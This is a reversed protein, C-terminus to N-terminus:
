RYLRALVLPIVTNFMRLQARLMQFASQNNENRAPEFLPYRICQIYYLLSIPLAHVNQQKSSKSTVKITEKDITKITEEDITIWPLVNEHRPPRDALFEATLNVHLDRIFDRGCVLLM